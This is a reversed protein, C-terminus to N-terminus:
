PERRFISRTKFSLIQEVNSCIRGKWILGRELLSKTYLLDFLFDCFNDGKYSITSFRGLKDLERLTFNLHENSSNITDNVTNVRLIPVGYSRVMTTRYNTFIQEM